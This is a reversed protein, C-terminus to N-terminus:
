DGNVLTKLQEYITANACVITGARDLPLPSGSWDSSRGGAEELVLIAAAYDWPKIVKEFYGDLRGAAIYCVAIATSCIRRLDLCGEFVRQARAFTEAAQDKHSSGAGFEILAKQLPRDSVTLTNEAYNEVGVALLEDIGDKANFLHAGRGRVAFFIEGTFPNFVVGFQVRGKEAYALSISSMKYDYILNTTGDIPDLIFSRERLAHKSEEETMFGVEPFAKALAEKLFDSIGTDVATVFDYPNANKEQAQLDSSFVIRRAEYVLSLITNYDM